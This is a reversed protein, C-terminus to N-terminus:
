KTGSPRCFTGLTKAVALALSGRWSPNARLWAAVRQAFTGITVSGVCRVYDDHFPLEYNYSFFSQGDILGGIYIAQINEPLLLYEKASLSEVYNLTPKAAYSNCAILVVAVLLSPRIM